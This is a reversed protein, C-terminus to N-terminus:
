PDQRFRTVFPCSDGAGECGLLWELKSLLGIMLSSFFFLKM